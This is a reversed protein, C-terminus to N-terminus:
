PYEKKMVTFTVRIDEFNHTDKGISSYGFQEYFSVARHNGEYVMLWASVPAVARIEEEGSRMLGSGIGSGAMDSLVYIKQVQVQDARQILNHSCSQKLKLFGVVRDEVEAVFYVNDPKSLSSLIKGDSYTADLYRSLVDTPFLHGFAWSFSERGVYAIADEDGATANRIEM